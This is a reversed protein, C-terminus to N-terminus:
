IYQEWEGVPHHALATHAWALHAEEDLLIHRLYYLTPADPNAFTQAIHWRYTAVLAPKIVRFIGALLDDATPANIAEYMLWELAEDGPPRFAPTQVERLRLYFSQVHQGDEWMLRGLDLKTEMHPTAPLWGALIKVTEHEIFCYRNLLRKNKQFDVTETPQILTLAM